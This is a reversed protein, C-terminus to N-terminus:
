KASRKFSGAQTPPDKFSRYVIYTMYQGGSTDMDKIGDGGRNVNRCGPRGRITYLTEIPNRIQNSSDHM